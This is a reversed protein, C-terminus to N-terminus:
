MIRKWRLVNHRTNYNPKWDRTVNIITPPITLRMEVDLATIKRGITCYIVSGVDGIEEVQLCRGIEDLARYRRGISDLAASDSTKRLVHNQFDLKLRWDPPLTSLGNFWEYLMERQNANFPVDLNTDLLPMSSYPICLLNEAEPDSSLDVGELEWVPLFNPRGSGELTLFRGENEVDIATEQGSDILM